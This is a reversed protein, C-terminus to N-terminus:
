QKVIKKLHLNSGERIKLFYVGPSLYNGQDFTITNVGETVQRRVTHIARGSFDSLELVVEEPKLAHITLTFSGTTPNPYLDVDLNDTRVVDVGVGFSDQLIYIGTSDIYFNLSDLTSDNLNINVTWVSDHPIGPLDITIIYTANSTIGNLTYSGNAGTSVGGVIGGPSQDVTIDIGPIPDGPQKQFSGSSQFVYGKVSSSGTLPPPVVLKVDKQVVGSDCHVSFVGALDWRYCWTPEKFYSTLAGPYLSTDANVRVLFSDAPVYNFQYNGGADTTTSDIPHWPKPVIGKRFLFVKANNVPTVGGITVQGTVSNACNCILSDDSTTTVDIGFPLNVMYMNPIAYVSDLVGFYSTDINVVPTLANAYVSDIDPCSPDLDHDTKVVLVQNTEMGSTHIFGGDLTPTIEFPFNNYSSAVPTKFRKVGVYNGLDDFRFIAGQGNVQDVGEILITGKGDTTSRVLEIEHPIPLTYYKTWNTTGNNMKVSTIVPRKFAGGVTDYVEVVVFADTANLIGVAFGDSTYNNDIPAAFKVNKSWIINGVNDLKTMLVYSETTGINDKSEGVLFLGGDPTELGARFEFQTTDTNRYISDWLLAGSADFKMVMADNKYPPIYTKTLNGYIAYGGDQTAIIGNPNITLSDVFYGTHWNIAGNLDYNILYPGDHVYVPSGLAETTYLVTHSTASTTAEVMDHGGNTNNPQFVYVSDWVSNGDIDLKVVNPNFGAAQDDYHNSLFYGSQDKIESVIAGTFQFTPNFQAFKIRTTFKSHKVQAPLVLVGLM